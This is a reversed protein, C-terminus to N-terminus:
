VNYILLCIYQSHYFIFLCLHNQFRTEVQLNILFKNTSDQRIRVILSFCYASINKLCNKYFFCSLMFFGHFSRALIMVTASVAMSPLVPYEALIVLNKFAFFINFESILWEPAKRLEAILAFLAKRRNKSQFTHVIAMKNFAKM